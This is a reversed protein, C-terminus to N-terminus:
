KLSLRCFEIKFQNKCALFGTQWVRNKLSSKEFILYLHIPCFNLYCWLSISILINIPRFNLLDRFLITLDFSRGVWQTVWRKSSMNEDHLNGDLPYWETSTTQRAHATALLSTVFRLERHSTKTPLLILSRHCLMPWNKWEFITKQTARNWKGVNTTKIAKKPPWCNTTASCQVSSIEAISGAGSTFPQPKFLAFWRKTAWAVAPTFGLENFLKFDSKSVVMGLSAGERSCNGNRSSAFCLM